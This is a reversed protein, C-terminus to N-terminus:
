LMKQLDGYSKILAAYPPNDEAYIHFIEIIEPIEPLYDLAREKTLSYPDEIVEVQKTKFNTLRLPNGQKLIDRLLEKKEGENLRSVDISSVGGGEVANASLVHAALLSAIFTGIIRKKM